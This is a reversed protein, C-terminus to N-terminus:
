IPTNHGCFNYRHYRLRDTAARLHRELYGPHARRAYRYIGFLGAYYLVCASTGAKILIDALKQGEKLSKTMGNQEAYRHIYNQDSVPGQLIAGDLSYRSARETATGRTLYWMTDNAGTSTGMLVVKGVSGTSNRKYSAMYSICASM